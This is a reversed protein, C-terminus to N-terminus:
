AVAPVSAVQIQNLTRGCRGPQFSCRDQLADGHRVVSGWGGAVGHSVAILELLEDVPTASVGMGEVQKGVQLGALSHEVEATPRLGQPMMALRSDM